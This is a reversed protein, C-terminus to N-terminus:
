FFLHSGKFYMKVLSINNESIIRLLVHKNVLGGDSLVVWTFIKATHSIALFYFKIDNLTLSRQKTISTNYTHM